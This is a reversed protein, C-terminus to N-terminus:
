RLYIWNGFFSVITMCVLNLISFVLLKKFYFGESTSDNPNEKKILTIFAALATGGGASLPSISSAYSGNVIAGVLQAAGVNPFQAMIDPITPLMTPVVVASTTSFISMIGSVLAIIPLATNKDMVALLATTMIDIGGTLTVINMLVNVGCIMLLTSWPISKIIEKDDAFHFLCLVLGVLLGSLGVHFKFIAVLVIFVLISILSLIQKKTFKPAPYGATM